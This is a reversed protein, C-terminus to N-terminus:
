VLTGTLEININLSCIFKIIGGGDEDRKDAESILGDPDFEDKLDQPKRKESSNIREAPQVQAPTKPREEFKQLRNQSVLQHSALFYERRVM